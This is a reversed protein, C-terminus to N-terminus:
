IPHAKHRIGHYFGVSWAIAGALFCPFATLFHLLQTINHPFRNQFIFRITRLLLSSSGLVTRRFLPGRLSFYIAM